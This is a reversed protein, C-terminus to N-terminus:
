SSAPVSLWPSSESGQWGTAALSGTGLGVPQHQRASWARPSVRQSGGLRQPRPLHLGLLHFRWQPAHCRVFRPGKLAPHCPATEKWPPFAIPFIFYKRESPELPKRFPFCGNRLPPPLQRGLPLRSRSM